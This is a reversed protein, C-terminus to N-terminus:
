PMESTATRQIWPRYRSRTRQDLRRSASSTRKATSSSATTTKVASNRNLSGFTLRSNRTRSKGDWARSVIAPRFTMRTMKRFMRAEPRLVRYMSM